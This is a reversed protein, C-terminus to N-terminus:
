AGAHIVELVKALASKSFYEDVEIIAKGIRVRIGVSNQSECEDTATVRVFSFAETGDHIAPVSSHNKAKSRHCCLTSYPINTRLSYEKLTLGSEDFEQLIAPWNRSPYVM